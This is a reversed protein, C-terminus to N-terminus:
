MSMILKMDVEVSGNEPTISELYEIMKDSVSNVTGFMAKLKGSSFSPTLKTRLSKWKQGKLFFLGGSMPDEEENVYVGRDHFSTFDKTLIDRALQADRILLAPRTFLYVGLVKENSNRYVDYLAMGFSKEQKRVPDLCGFPINAEVYPFGKRQWHSFNWKLYFYLVSLTTLLLILFM